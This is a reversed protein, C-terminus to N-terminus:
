CIRFGGCHELFQVFDKVNDESFPYHYIMNKVTGEGQCVNCELMKPQDTNNPGEGAEWTRAGTQSCFICPENPTSDVMQKWDKEFQAVKGQDIHSQLLSALLLSDEENLGDGDNYHAGPAKKALDPFNDEIYNWLPRWWWVNNRFYEGKPDKPETGFVDMGM